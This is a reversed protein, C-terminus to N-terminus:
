GKRRRRVSLALSGLGTVLLLATSPEPTTSAIIQTSFYRTCDVCKDSSWIWEAQTPMVVVKPPLGPAAGNAGFSFPTAPNQGFGTTSVVWDTTNTNLTQQGNAFHHTTGFLEFTGLVAARTRNGVALVQLWYSQGPLLAAAVGWSTGVTNGLTVFTGTTTPSTSLYVIFSNDVTILGNLNYNFVQATAGSPTLLTACSGLAVSALVRRVAFRPM